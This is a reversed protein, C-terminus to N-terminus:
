LLLKILAIIGVLLALIILIITMTAITFGIVRSVMPVTNQIRRM